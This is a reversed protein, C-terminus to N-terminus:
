QAPAVDTNVNADVNVNANADAAPTGTNTNTADAGPAPNAPQNKLARFQDLVKQIEVIQPVFYKGDRSMFVVQDVPQSTQPDVLSLTIQYLGSETTVGKLTATGVQSAYVENIFNLLNQGAADPEVTVMKPQAGGYYNTFIVGVLVIALVISVVLWINPKMTGARNPTSGSASEPVTPKPM